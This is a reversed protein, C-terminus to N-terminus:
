SGKGGGDNAVRSVRNIAQEEMAHRQMRIRETEMQQMERARIAESEMALRQRERELGLNGVSRSRYLGRGGRGGGLGGGFGGGYGGAFRRSGLEAGLAQQNM